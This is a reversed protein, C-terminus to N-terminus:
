RRETLYIRGSGSLMSKNLIGVEKDYLELEDDIEAVKLVIIPACHDSGLGPLSIENKLYLNDFPSKKNHFVEYLGKCHIFDNYSGSVVFRDKIDDNTTIGAQATGLNFNISRYKESTSDRSIELADEWSVARSSDAHVTDYVPSVIVTDPKLQKEIAEGTTDPPQTAFIPM